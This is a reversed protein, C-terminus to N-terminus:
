TEGYPPRKLLLTHTATNQTQRKLVAAVLRLIFGMSEKRRLLPMGTFLLSTWPLFLSLGRHSSRLRSEAQRCKEYGVSNATDNVARREGHFLHLPYCPVYSFVYGFSHFRQTYLVYSTPNKGLLLAFLVSEQVAIRRAVHANTSILRQNTCRGMTSYGYLENPIYFSNQTALTACTIKADCKSKSLLSFKRRSRRM